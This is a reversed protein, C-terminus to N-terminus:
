CCIEGRDSGYRGWEGFGKEYEDTLILGDIVASKVFGPCLANCHIRDKACDIVVQRTIGVVAHKALVSRLGNTPGILGLMSATNIIWGRTRDVRANPARPEQTLMQGVAYKCGLWVARQNITHTRDYNDTPTDYIRLPL